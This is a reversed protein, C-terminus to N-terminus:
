SIHRNKRSIDTFQEMSFHDNVSHRDNIKFYFTSLSNQIVRNIKDLSRLTIKSNLIESPATLGPHERDPSSVGSSDHSM